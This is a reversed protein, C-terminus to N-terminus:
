QVPRCRSRLRPGPVYGPAECIAELGPIVVRVVPIEFEPKTLEVVVVQQIGALKLRSLQWEVDEEVSPASWTPIDRFHRVGPSAGGAGTAERAALRAEDADFLSQSLDDRAGAILTLRGQAAETLARMLAIERRPHCGYGAVPHLPECGLSWSDAVQCRFCPIGIDTTTDWVTVEVQAAAFRQLLETCPADDVSRLDLQTAAQAERASFQWLASADREVVECIGHSTAELVHNGSALGNSSMLFTGSGTPFPLTYDAHVVEYPLWCEEDQLLERGEIWLLKRGARLAGASVRPLRELDIVRAERRLREYSSLRLPKDIHEAHFSEIAEMVGSAKAATLTFGKGLAVAVSRSNPRTVAVVPIGVRDLGTLNAVRTIGMAALVRSARALTEEPSRVRDVALRASKTCPGSWAFAAGAEGSGDPTSLTM